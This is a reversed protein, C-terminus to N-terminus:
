EKLLYDNNIAKISLWGDLVNSKEAVVPRIVIGEKDMGSPYKGKARELLEDVSSYGFETVEEVPVTKLGLKTCWTLMEHLGLREGKYQITFVYWEPRKLKLRNKQIGAGCFEGQIMMGDPMTDLSLGLSNMFDVLKGESFEYNRGCVGFHEGLRYVSVSTGDMKTTVYVKKGKFEKLVAPVAQCRIEDTPEFYNSPFGGCTVGFDTIREEEEWKRVGLVETVDDGICWVEKPLIDLPQVLGQSIQGRMKVTRLKFGEGLIPSNKYSTKRLFEFMECVPLFSDVEFYVCMQGVHFQGKPAICQWGLVKVLEIRDAGSIPEIGHVYQVSALKRM